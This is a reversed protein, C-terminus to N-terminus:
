IFLKNSKRGIAFFYEVSFWLYSMKCSLLTCFWPADIGGWFFIEFAFVMFKRILNTLQILSFFCFKYIWISIKFLYIFSFILFHVFDLLHQEKLERKPKLALLWINSGCCVQPFYMNSHGTEKFRANLYEQLFCFGGFIKVTFGFIM